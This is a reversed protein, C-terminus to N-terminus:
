YNCTLYIAIKFCFCKGKVLIHLLHYCLKGRLLLWRCVCRVHLWKCLFLFKNFFDYSLLVYWELSSLQEDEIEETEDPMEEDDSLDMQESANPVQPEFQYPLIGLSSDALVDSGYESSLSSSRSLSESTESESSSMAFCVFGIGM